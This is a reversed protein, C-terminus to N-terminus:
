ATKKSVYSAIAERDKQSIDEFFIALDYHQTKGDVVVPHERVVVGTVEIRRTPSGAKEPDPLMIVIKVRSMLPVEKDIKCYAGSASINLAYIATDLEGLKLKMALDKEPARPAGRREVKVM